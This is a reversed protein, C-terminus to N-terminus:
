GYINKFREKTMKFLISNDTKLVTEFGFNNLAQQGSISTVNDLMVQGNFEYFYYELMLKMAEKAYGRGRFKSQIKINFEATKSDDDYRHFSVEGVPQNEFNYILCYFNKGDTPKVMKKYWDKRREKPFSVVGGVDKMTNEDSWLESVYDLEDFEPQKIYILRGEKKFFNGNKDM